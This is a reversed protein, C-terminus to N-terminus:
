KRNIKGLFREKWTLKKSLSVNLFHIQDELNAIKSLWKTDIEYLLGKYNENDANLKDVQHELSRNKSHLLRYENKFLNLLQIFEEPKLGEDYESTLLYNLDKEM